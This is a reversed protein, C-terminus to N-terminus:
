PNLNSAYWKSFDASDNNPVSNAPYASSSFKGTDMSNAYNITNPDKWRRNMAHGDVFSITSSVIHYCAPSDWFSINYPPQATPGYTSDFHMEWSGGNQGFTLTGVTVTRPDNEEVFLARDSAHLVATKKTLQYGKTPTGNLGGVGSYSTYSYPVIRSRADGPCHIIGANPAYQVFRGQRYGAEDFFQAASSSSLGAPPNPIVYPPINGPDLRWSNVQDTRFSVISDNNDDAYMGWTLALQKQNNLCTAMQGKRKAGALAPLLMAALIAIIAIVVLLEILTFGQVGSQNTKKLKM